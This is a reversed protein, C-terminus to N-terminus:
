LVKKSLTKNIKVLLMQDAFNAPCKFETANVKDKSLLLRGTLDFIEVSEINFGKSKITIADDNKYAFWNNDQTSNQDVALVSNTYVIEFRDDFTGAQSSFIYNSETLNHTVTADKDKLYITQGESFIGDVNNISINYMGTTAAKFGLPVIDTNQFPLSRGQIVYKTEDILTYISSGSYGFLKADIQHDAAMTANPVYGILIQNYPTTEDSLNLWMRHREETQNKFFQGNSSTLRMDNTFELLYAQITKVVFGQGVQIIGDPVVGGPTAPVGGISSYSAYNNAAYSGNIPPSEHTWFYLSEINQNLDLFGAADIPSPYPNGVYNYGKNSATINIGINGNQPKGNFIGEFVIPSQAPIDTFNPYTNPSRVSYGKGPVFTSSTTINTNSFANAAEDYEYIRGPVTGLAFGYLNQNEVPSSWGTAELRYMPTTHRNVTISGSNANVAVNQTQVLYADNELTFDADNGVTVENAVKISSGTKVLLVANDELTLTKALADYNADIVPTNATVPIVVCNTLNPTGNPTWNVANSWDSDASGNWIKSALVIEVPERTSECTGEAAAVYYTVSASPTLTYTFGTHVLQGGNPADYWNVTYLSDDITEAFLTVSETTCIAAGQTTLIEASTPTLTATVATTASECTGNSAAVYFVTTTATLVPTTWSGTTTTGLLNGGTAADYWLFQTTTPSATAELIATSCGSANTVSVIEADCPNKFTVSWDNVAVTASGTLAAVLRIQSYATMATLDHSKLGDGTASINTYGAVDTWVSGNYQQIKLNVSGGNLTQTWVLDKYKEVNQVSALAIPTSTATGQPISTTTINDVYFRMQQDYGLLQTKTFNILKIVKNGTYGLTSLDINVHIPGTNNMCTIGTPSWTYVIDGGSGAATDSIVVRFENPITTTCNFNSWAFNWFSVDMQLSTVGSLNVAQYLGTYDNVLYGISAPNNNYMVVSNTGHTRFTADTSTAITANSGINTSTTWGTLATEFSPNTVVSSSGAGPIINNSADAQTGSHTATALQAQTTQFWNPTTNASDYTFSYTQTTWPSYTGVSGRVRARVYYTTQNTPTFGNNFTFNAETNLPYSGSITQTWATGTFNSASNIEIQYDTATDIGHSMRFIPTTTNLQSNNFALQETGGTNYFVINNPLGALSLVNVSYDETEGYDTITCGNDVGLTQGFASRIRVKKSGVTTGSPVSFTFTSVQNNLVNSFSGLYESTGSFVNDGNWDIWAGIVGPNVPNGNDRYTVQITYSNGEMVDTSQSTYNTYGPAVTAFGTTNNITGLKVNSIGVYGCDGVGACSGNTSGGNCATTYSVVTSYSSASACTIKRRYYTTTAASVATIVTSTSSTAGSIDTWPGTATPASEWQYTLGSAGSTAGTVSATFTSGFTGSTPSLSATGGTPTGSCVAAETYTVSIYPRNANSYGAVEFYQGNTWTGMAYLGMAVFGNSLATQLYTRGSASFLSNRWGLGTIATTASHAATMSNYLAQGQTTVGTPVTLPDSSNSLAWTRAAVGTGYGALINIYGTAATITSGAPIASLNFRMSGQIWYGSQRGTYVNTYQYEGDSWVHGTWKIANNTTVNLTPDVKVPFQRENNLLWATKVKTKITIVNNNLAVVEFFTNKEKSLGGLADFSVPSEYTYIASQNKDYLAIAGTKDAKYTWGNPLIVDETFVLFEANAPINSLSQRNPIVYNLKRRGSEITFEAGINGYLNNYYAKDAQTTIFANSGTQINVAQNNVEWYMKTNLFETIEGEATKNKVGKHATAGFYSEFLNEKNTYPYTADANTQINHDIEYYKGSKQYHIPGSGILATSTGDNNIYHKSFTDRKSLDEKKGKFQELVSLGDSSAKADSVPLAAVDSSTIRAVSNSKVAPQVKASNIKKADQSYGTLALFFFAVFFVLNFRNKTMQNWLPTISSTMPISNYILFEKKQHKQLLHPIIFAHFCYADVSNELIQIRKLIHTKLDLPQM